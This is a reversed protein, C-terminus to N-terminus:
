RKSRGRLSIKKHYKYSKKSINEFALFLVLSTLFGLFTSLGPSLGVDRHLFYMMPVGAFLFFLGAVFLDKLFGM